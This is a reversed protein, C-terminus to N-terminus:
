EPAPLQAAMQAHGAASPHIGTDGSIVWPPGSPVPGACFSFPHLVELEDQTPESQVSPGDVKFGLRSCSYASPYVPEVSVGVNFHPPAVIQLRQANVEGAVKAIERNLLQGMQAIQTSSYALAVSPVSLPYQMLYITAQTHEVLDTYLKRLDTQLEVKAFAKEVCEAFNGFLDSYIACRMNDSGFLVESLLPNAGITMLIYDPDASEIQATTEHLIGGPAWEKPESGSIALNEYNTVGYRDAWQAAWSVNNALGYDPVYEFASSKNSLIESNSSCADNYPPGAPRCFLLAPLPWDEGDGYYGFGATVSDGMARVVIGSAPEVYIQVPAPVGAEGGAASSIAGVGRPRGRLVLGTAGRFARPAHYFLRGNRIQERGADPSGTVRWRVSATCAPLPISVTKGRGIRLRPVSSCLRGNGPRLLPRAPTTQDRSVMEPKGDENVDLKGGAMVKVELGERVQRALAPTLGVRHVFTFRRRREGIRLLGAGIREHLVWSETVRGGPQRLQVTLPMVRGSFHIPYHVPVLLAAGGPLTPASLSVHGIQVKAPPRPQPKAGALPAALLMAVVALAALARKM